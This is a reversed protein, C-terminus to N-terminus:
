SVGLKERARPLAEAGYVRIAGLPDSGSFNQLCIATAGLEGLQEIRDAHHAPDSSIINAARFDEDSVEERVQEQMAQPSHVDDKFFEPPATAKWVRSAALAEEDTEAWAFGSQLIVEGEGGDERWSELIEPVSEPDGLTWIGDGHRAAVKAAQPGFASVYLRPRGEARTYLRAERTTYYEGEYSLTEGDWLRTIIELAEDLRRIQEGVSPWEVGFPVENLAEGSGVGLYVRGPFMEELTMFAQAVLVPHYHFLPPTVGTGMPVRSTAQLAAGLWM